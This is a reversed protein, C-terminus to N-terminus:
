IIEYIKSTKYNTYILFTNLKYIVKIKSKIPKGYPIELGNELFLSNSPDPHTIGMGKTSHKGHPLNAANYDTNPLENMKGLAVECLLILATNKTPCCYGISKSAM